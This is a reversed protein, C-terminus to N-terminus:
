IYRLFDSNDYRQPHTKLFIQLVVQNACGKNKIIVRNTTGFISRYPFSFFFCEKAMVNQVEQKSILIFEYSQTM